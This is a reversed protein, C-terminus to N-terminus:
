SERLPGDGSSPPLSPLGEAPQIRISNTLYAVLQYQGVVVPIEMLQADDYWARLRRWREEGIRAHHILEDAAGLLAADSESWQSASPGEVIRDIEAASIGV